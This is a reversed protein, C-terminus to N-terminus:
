LVFDGCRTLAQLEVYREKIASKDLNVIGGLSFASVAFSAMVTGVLAARKLNDNSVDNTAALFGMLGGAFTDGAGTPDLVSELPVAPAFFIEDRAFMLAGHEGRKIVVIEPGTEQLLRAAKLVNREGTLLESEEDNIFVANVRALVRLLADRNGNIWFDMTDLGVFTEEPVQDLVSAQLDPAINALFLYPVNTYPDPLQPHFDAFVGLQTSLSERSLLNKTYRGHWFFTPGDEYQLGRLDVGSDRLLSEHTPDFDGGVVAVLGTKSFYSASTSFFSASGGLIREAVEVPTEITDYAVSGVVVLQIDLNSKM